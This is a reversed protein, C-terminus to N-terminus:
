EIERRVAALEASARDDLTGDPSVKKRFFRLFDTFDAINQSLEHIAPWPSAGAPAANAEDPLARVFQPPHIAIERWEAARDITSIVDRIELTELAAGEIKAKNIMQSVDALEGFEFRGGGSLYRRVEATLQQHREIWERDGSPALKGIHDKGLPSFAYGRLVERLSDFELVRASTHTLLAM